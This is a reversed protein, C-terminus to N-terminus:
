RKRKVKPIDLLGMDVLQAISGLLASVAVQEMLKRSEVWVEDPISPADPHEEKLNVRQYEMAGEALAHAHAFILPTLYGIRAVRRESEEEEKEMVEFSPSATGLLLAIEHANNIQSDLIFGRLRSSIEAFSLEYAPRRNQWFKWSM